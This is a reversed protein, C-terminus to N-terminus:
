VIRAPVTPVTAAAGAVFRHVLDVAHPVVAERLLRADEVVVEVAITSATSPHLHAGAIAKLVVCQPRHDACPYGSSPSSSLRSRLRRDM